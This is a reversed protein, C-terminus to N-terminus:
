RTVTKITVKYLASSSSIPVRILSQSNEILANKEIAWDTDATKSWVQIMEKTVWAPINLYFFFAEDEIRPNLLTVEELPLLNVTVRAPSSTVSGIANAVTVTYLGSDLETVNPITLESSIANAIPEGDKYWQYYLPPAGSAEVALELLEGVLLELDASFSIIEPPLEISGSEAVARYFIYKQLAPVKVRGDAEITYEAKAWHVGDLSGEIEFVSAGEVEFIFYFEGAEQVFLPNSLYIETVPVWGKVTVRAPSSTVSGIANAVVVTYLGSDLETVNPITLESSIANAIPEGDKYWQYYLPPAGSVEVALELSEGVLLEMDASFSIIEPPLEISGSEAVARYFIYKQLAPVKVRGDTEITYEAKAWHVGDLSGEIEFVSAGEVEFIFYFEGAEQVFLPKSLYIETVPVWGKVTVRAPSSTVSGIANAVTVTYLGSDLETVNPITLESSIANAIPEGDKYWQYYLPPTGSAEVSLELSEGASIRQSQPHKTILPFNIVILTAPQSDVSGKSNFVTVSYEGQNVIQVNEIHLRPQTQDRIVAGDHRWIYSLAGGTASVEFVAEMGESVELSKPQSIIKPSQTTFLESEWILAPYKNEELSWINSFNWGLEEYHLTTKLAESSTTAGDKKDSDDLPTVVLSNAKLLLAADALNNSFDVTSVASIRGAYAKIPFADSHSEVAKGLAVSSGIQSFSSAGVLGGAYASTASSIVNCSGAAYSTLVSSSLSFGCLGGVYGRGMGSAPSTHSQPVTNAEVFGTAYSDEVTSLHIYGVLGGAYGDGSFDADATSLAVKNKAMSAFISGSHLYGVLGGAYATGSTRGGFAITSCVLSGMAYCDELLTDEAYAIVGGAASTDTFNNSVLSAYITCDAGSRFFHSEQAYGTLGAVTKAGTVTGSAFCNSFISSNAAGALGAVNTAGTISIGEVRLNSITANQTFGFLGVDASNPRYVELNRVVYGRGDFHGSFMRNSIRRHGIPVWGAGNNYFAGSPTFDEETFIIDNELQFFKDAGASGIYNTLSSLQARTKIRWPSEKTGAGGAFEAAQLIQSMAPLIFITFLILALFIPQKWRPKFFNPAQQPLILKNQM